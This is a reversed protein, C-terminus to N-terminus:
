RALFYFAVVAALGAVAPVFRMAFTTYGFVKFSAVLLYLLPTSRGFNAERWVTLHDKDIISFAETAIVAEDYWLGPPFESFRHFRFFAALGIVALLLAIEILPGPALAREPAEEAQRPRRAAFAAVGLGLGAIAFTYGAHSFGNNSTVKFQTAVATAIALLALLPAFYGGRLLRRWRAPRVPDPRVTTEPASETSADPM